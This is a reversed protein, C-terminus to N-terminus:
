KKHNRFNKKKIKEKFINGEELTMSETNVKNEKVYKIFEIDLDVYPYKKNVLRAVEENVRPLVSDKCFNGFSNNVSAKVDDSNSSPMQFAQLSNLVFKKFDNKEYDAASEIKKYDAASEPEILFSLANFTKDLFDSQYLKRSENQRNKEISDKDDKIDNFVSLWDEFLDKNPVNKL